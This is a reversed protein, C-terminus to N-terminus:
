MGVWVYVKLYDIVCMVECQIMEVSIQTPTPSFMVNESVWGGRFGCDNKLVELSIGLWM